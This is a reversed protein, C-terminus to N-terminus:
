CVLEDIMGAPDFDYRALIGVDVCGWSPYLEPYRGEGEAAAAVRSIFELAAPFDQFLFTKYFHRRPFAITVSM